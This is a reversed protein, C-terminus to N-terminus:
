GVRRRARARLRVPVLQPMAVRVREYLNVEPDGVRVSVVAAYNIRGPGGRNDWDGRGIAHVDLVPSNINNGNVCVDGRSVTDWKGDERLQQERRYRKTKPHASQKWGDRLFVQAAETHQDATRHKKDKSYSFKHMHPRFRIEIGGLTYDDPTEMRVDCAYVITWAFYARGDYELVDHFPLQLRVWRTLDIVGNYLVKVENRACEMLEDPLHTMAGWGYMAKDFDRSVSAHHIILAKTTQPTIVSPESTRYFLNGAISAVSPTAYSTGQEAAVEGNTGALLVYFPYEISGGFGCIDPKVQSGPRGPGVCCYTTPRPSGDVYTFAGVGLGNVLDSPPQIRSFPYQMEGSNGAAVLFLVDYEYALRDLTATFRNVEDDEVPMGPGFCLTYVQIHSNAPDRVIDELWDLIQYLDLDWGSNKPVPFVRFSKAKLRPQVPDKQPDCSGYLAAGCVATGHELFFDDAAEPTKDVNSVWGRLHPIKDDVGGDIIGIEPYVARVAPGPPPYVIGNSM